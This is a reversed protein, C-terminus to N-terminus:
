EERFFDEDIELLTWREKDTVGFGVAMMLHALEPGDILIIKKEIHKM